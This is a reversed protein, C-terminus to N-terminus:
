FPLLPLLPPCIAVRQNGPAYTIYSEALLHLLMHIIQLHLSFTGPLLALASTPLEGLAFSVNFVSTPEILRKLAEYAAM